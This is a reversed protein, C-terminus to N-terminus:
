ARMRANSMRFWLSSQVPEGVQGLWVWVVDEWDNGGDGEEGGDLQARVAHAVLVLRRLHLVKHAEKGEGDDREGPVERRHTHKHTSQTLTNAILDPHTYTRAHTRSPTQIHTCAHTSRM